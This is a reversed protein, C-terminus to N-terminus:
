IEILAVRIFSELFGQKHELPLRPAQEQDLQFSTM